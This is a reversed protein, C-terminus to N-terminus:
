SMSLIRFQSLYHLEGLSVSVETSKAAYDLSPSAIFAITDNGKMDFLASAVSALSCM